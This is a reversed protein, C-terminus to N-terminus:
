PLAPHVDDVTGVNTRKALATTPTVSCTVDELPHKLAKSKPTHRMRVYMCASVCVCVCVCVRVFVRMCARVCVCM